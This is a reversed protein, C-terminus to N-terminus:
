ALDQYKAVSLGLKPELSFLLNDSPHTEREIGSIRTRAVSIVIFAGFTTTSM